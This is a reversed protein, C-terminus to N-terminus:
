QILFLLFHLKRIERPLFIDHDYPVRQVPARCTGTLMGAEDILHFRKFRQVRFHEADTNVAHPRVFRVCFLHSDLIGQKRIKM